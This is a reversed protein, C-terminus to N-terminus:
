AGYVTGLPDPVREKHLMPRLNRYAELHLHLPKDLRGFASGADYHRAGWGLCLVCIMLPLAVNFAFYLSHGGTRGWFRRLLSLVADQRGVLVQYLSIAAVYLAFLGFVIHENM